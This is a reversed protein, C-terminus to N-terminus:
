VDVGTGAASGKRVARLVLGRGDERRRVELSDVMQALLYFGRGREDELDPPGDPHLLAAVDEPEGGGEDAIELSWGKGVIHLDLLVHVPRDLDGEEMAANGGGHDVANSLLESAVLVLGELEPGRIANSRAFQRVVDRAMRVASHAAPLDLHLEDSPEQAPGSAGTV